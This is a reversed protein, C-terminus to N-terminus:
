KNGTMLRGPIIIMLSSTHEKGKANIGTILPKVTAVTGHINSKHPERRVTKSSVLDEPHINLEVTAKAATNRHNKSVIRKLASCDRDSLKPKRSCNMKASSTKGM